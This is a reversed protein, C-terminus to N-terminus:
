RRLISSTRRTYCRNTRTRQQVTSEPGRGLDHLERLVAVLESPPWRRTKSAIEDAMLPIVAGPIYDPFKPSVWDYLPYLETFDTGFLHCISPLHVEIGIHLDPNHEGAAERAAKTIGSIFETMSATRFNLWVALQPRKLLFNVLEIASVNSLPTPGAPAPSVLTSYLTAAEQKMRDFDIGQSEAKNRCFECFCVFLERLGLHPWRPYELHNLGLMDLSLWGAVIERVLTEAFARTDPNNPCAQVLQDSEVARNGTIDICSLPALDLSIPNSPLVNCCVNFGKAKASDVFRLLSDFEGGAVVPVPLEGFPQASPVVYETGDIERAYNVGVMVTNIDTWRALDDLVREPENIATHWHVIMGRPTM